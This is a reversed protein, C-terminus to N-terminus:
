LLGHPSSLNQNKQITTRRIATDFFAVFFTTLFADFVAEMLFFLL